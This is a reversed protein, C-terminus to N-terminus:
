CKQLVWKFRIGEWIHEMEGNIAKRNETAGYRDELIAKIDKDGAGKLHFKKCYLHFHHRLEKKTIFTNYDEKICDICFATFSDSKRVWMEKIEKTGQTVSFNKQKLLRHLGELAKNLLGSLEEPTAIKEIIMPDKIKHFNKEEEKLKDYEEQTVFKYPFNFLVWKEWFGDTIDFVRPLENCAFIHKAFNVFVLDRLFKRHTQIIDRGVTQKFMGTEKLDSSNLDGALNFLRMYLECLSSNNENMSRIPVACCNEPSVLRKILELLKTKGNRGFGNLMVAKEIFYEKYLGSGIVEYMAIVDEEKDLIDKLFKETHPNKAQPNYEVPLKNFFVKKPNYPSLTLTLVNLIGNQVPIEDIYKNEFFEDQDIFTDTEIKSIVINALYNNYLTGLIRRCFEKIYSRGNPVYIGNEYLWVEEKIDDKTTYLFNNREIYNVILETAQPIEPHKGALYNLIKMRLMYEESSLHTRREEDEREKNYKTQLKQYLKYEEEEKEKEKERDEEQMKEIIKAVQKKRGQEKYHEALEPLNGETELKIAQEQEWNLDEEMIFKRDV